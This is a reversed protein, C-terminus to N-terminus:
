YLSMRVPPGRVPFSNSNIFVRFLNKLEYRTPIARIGTIYEVSHVGNISFLCLVCASSTEQLHEDVDVFVEFDPHPHFFVGSKEGACVGEYVHCLEHVLPAM